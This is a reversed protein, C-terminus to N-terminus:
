FLKKTLKQVTHKGEALPSSYYRDDGLSLALQCKAIAPFFFLLSHLNWLLCLQFVISKICTNLNVTCSSICKMDHEASRHMRNSISRKNRVNEHFRFTDIHGASITYTCWPYYTVPFFFLFFRLIYIQKPSSFLCRLLNFMKTHLMICGFVSSSLLITFTNQFNKVYPYPSSNLFLSFLTM